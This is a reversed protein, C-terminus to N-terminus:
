SSSELDWIANFDWIHNLLCPWKVSPISKALQHLKLPPPDAILLAEGDLKLPKYLFIDKDYKAAHLLLLLHIIKM